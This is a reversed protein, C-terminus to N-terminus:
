SYFRIQEDYELTFLDRWAICCMPLPRPIRAMRVKVNGLTSEFTDRVDGRCTLREGAINGLHDPSRIKQMGCNRHQLVSGYQVTRYELM